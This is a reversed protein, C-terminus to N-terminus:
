ISHKKSIADVKDCTIDGKKLSVTLMDNFTVSYATPRTVKLEFKPQEAM